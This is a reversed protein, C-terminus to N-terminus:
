GILFGAFWTFRQNGHLGAFKNYNVVSVYDGSNMYLQPHIWTGYYGGNGTTGNVYEARREDYAALVGNLYLFACDDFNTGDPVSPGYLLGVDFHYAGSVPATFRGNTTSYHGGTNYRGNGSTTNFIINDFTTVNTNTDLGAKFSPQNPTTLYGQTSIRAKEVGSPYFVVAGANTGVEASGANDTFEVAAIGDTSEFKAVVNTAGSTVHLHRDPSTEGVGVYGNSGVRMRENNNTGFALHKNTVAFLKTQVADDYIQSQITGNASFNIRQSVNTSTSDLTLISDTFAPTKVHLASSPAIGIGIKGDAALEINNGSNDPHKINELELTSM